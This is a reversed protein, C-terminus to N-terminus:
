CYCCAVVDPQPWRWEFHQWHELCNSASPEQQLGVGLAKLYAEKATWLQYFRTYVDGSAVWEREKPHLIRLPLKIAREIIEVDVGIPKKACGIAAWLDRRACSFFLHPHTSSHPSQRARHLIKIPQGLSTALQTQMWNHIGSRSEIEAVTWYM